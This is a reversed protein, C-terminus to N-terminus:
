VNISVIYRVSFALGGETSTTEVQGSMMSGVVSCLEPMDFPHCFGLQM